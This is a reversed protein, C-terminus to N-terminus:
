MGQLAIDGRQAVFAAGNSADWLLFLHEVVSELVGLSDEVRAQASFGHGKHRRRDDARLAWM